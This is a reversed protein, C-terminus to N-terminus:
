AELLEAYEKQFSEQHDLLWSQVIVKAIDDYNSDMKRNAKLAQLMEPFWGNLEFQIKM